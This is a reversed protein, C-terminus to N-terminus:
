LIKKSFYNFFFTIVGQVFIPDQDIEKKEWYFKAQLKINRKNRKIKAAKQQHTSSDSSINIKLNGVYKTSLKKEHIKKKVQIELNKKM